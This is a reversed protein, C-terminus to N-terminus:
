LAALLADLQNHNLGMGPFGALTDMPMTGIVALLAEDHLAGLTGFRDHLLGRGRPDALWEHLTSMRDLPAALSPADLTVTARLPLDRSSTGVAVDFEGAEVTWREHVTSWFAFSREDLEITVQEAAGPELEVRAFGKLERVPRTVTSEVDGVYLQVVEAGSVDGTNSVTVTATASHGTVEVSLDSLEFTTYSLGFGFPFAVQRDAYDYGRYGIFIGEGYRVTGSDGPFNLYSPNDQLRLPITEALKGCPNAVGLLLDAVAGGSAQGSLWCELVAPVTDVWPTMQVVSGNTLVVATRPHAAVVAALLGLQEPPLELDTRDFGESEASEPLGLFVVVHEAAGALEAADDTSRGDATRVTVDPGVLATLEDVANDVRTANVQSSGAGQFRPSSAFRGILAVTEGASPRLPLLADDNKLLVASRRAADRALAHHADVDFEDRQQGASRAVLDLVRRGSTDLVGEPLEGSGIAAVVARDSRGLNPPMELDLGARL